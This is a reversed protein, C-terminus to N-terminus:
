ELMLMTLRFKSFGVRVDGEDEEEDEEEDEADLMAIGPSTSLGLACPPTVGPGAKFRRQEM